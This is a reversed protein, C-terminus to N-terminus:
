LVMIKQLITILDNDISDMYYPMDIYNLVKTNCEQLFLVDDIMKNIKIQDKTLTATLDFYKALMYKINGIADNKKSPIKAIATNLKAIAKGWEPSVEAFKKSTYLAKITGYKQVLDYTQFYQQVEDAKRYLLNHFFEKSKVANKCYEMYKINNKALMIFMITNKNKTNSEGRTDFTHYYEDYYSIVKTNPFLIGFMRSAEELQTADEETGYYITNKYNFLKDLKVRCKSNYGGIFKVPITTNRIETTLGVGRKRSAIFDAPIEINNYDKAHKLVIGYYEDQMDILSQVYAVPKGNDDCVADLHVNFLEAIESKRYITDVKRKEIVHYTDHLSKLYAQRVIRRNFEGDCYYINDNRQLSEYGGEFSASSSYRNKKAKKGFSKSEFFFKFLQKDNPMKLFSYAFNTLNIDSQKIINGVNISSGNSFELKGFNLKMKFYDELGQVNTYQKTILEKIEEKVEELKAKLMKVTSESYDLSERSVTVGISGVELKIAVPMQYDSSNLGLTPFDIPYAVRGLCVHMHSAYDSGRFLFSKGRIIQYENMLTSATRYDDDFGEFIVNEFYYLQRVMEKAFTTQDKELIPIRVETGNGETTPESHLLSIIPSDSGEYMCYYYKVKDFVTIVYFSNDYEGEGLGTSRKYALPTKGGIGFGGIQTNDVRKTSEFYVGYINEIRDPSMGVGYDIFSVYLTNTQPDKFKKILVPAKVNAEVHSDFCNSTIERVVTGIPNSYVNKTFLQFVMSSAGESLRMKKQGATSEVAQKGLTLLNIEM